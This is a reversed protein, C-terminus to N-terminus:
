VVERATIYSMLSGNTGQLVHITAKISSDKTQVQADFQGLVKLCSQSGYACIRTSSKRLTVQKRKNITMLASEDIINISAGTDITIKIPVGNIKVIM